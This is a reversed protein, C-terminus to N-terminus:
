GLHFHSTRPQQNEMLAVDDRMIGGQVLAIRPPAMSNCHFQLGSMFRKMFNPFFHSFYLMVPYQRGLPNKRQANVGPHRLSAGVCRQMPGPERSAM